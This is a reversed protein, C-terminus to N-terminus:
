PAEVRVIIRIALETSTIIIMTMKLTTLPRSACTMCVREPIEGQITPGGVTTGTVATPITVMNRLTDM